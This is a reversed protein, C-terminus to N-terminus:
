SIIYKDFVCQLVDDTLIQPKYGMPHILAMNGKKGPNRVTTEWFFIQCVENNKFKEKM